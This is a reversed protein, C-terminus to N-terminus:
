LNLGALLGLLKTALNGGIGLLIGHLVDGSAKLINKNPNTSKLQDEITSIQYNAQNLAEHTLSLKPLETKLSQLFNQLSNKNQNWVQQDNVINQSHPGVSAAQEVNYTTSKNSKDVGTVFYGEQQISDGKVFNYTRDSQTSM